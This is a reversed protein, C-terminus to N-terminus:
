GSELHKQVVAVQPAGGGIGEGREIIRKEFFRAKVVVKSGQEGPLDGRQEPQAQRLRVELAVIRRLGVPQLDILSTLLEGAILQRERPVIREAREIGFPIVASRVEGGLGGLCLRVRKSEAGRLAQTPDVDDGCAIFVYRAFARVRGRARRSCSAPRRESPM